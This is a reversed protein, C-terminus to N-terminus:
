AEARRGRDRIHGQARGAARHQAAWRRRADHWRLTAEERLLEKCQLWSPRLPLWRRRWMCGRRWVGRVWWRPGSFYWGILYDRPGLPPWALPAITGRWGRRRVLGRPVTVEPNM